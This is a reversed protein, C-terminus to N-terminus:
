ATIIETYPKDIYYNLEEDTLYKPKIDPLILDSIDTTNILDEMYAIILSKGSVSYKKRLINEMDTIKIRESNEDTLYSSIERELIFGSLFRRLTYDLSNTIWNKPIFTIRNGHTDYYHNCEIEIWQNQELSWIIEKEKQISLKHGKYKSVQEDTFKILTPKVVSLIFDSMGDDNIGKVFLNVQNIQQILGNNFIPQSQARQFARLLSNKGPGKGIPVVGVQIRSYGLRCSNVFADEKINNFARKLEVDNNQNSLDTIRDFFGSLRKAADLSYPDSNNIIQTADTFLLNDQGETVINLVEMDKQSLDNKGLLHNVKERAKHM